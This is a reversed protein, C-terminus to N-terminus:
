REMACFFVAKCFIALGNGPTNCFTAVRQAVRLM